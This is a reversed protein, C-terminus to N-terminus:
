HYARQRFSMTGIGPPAQIKTRSACVVSGLEVRCQRLTLHEPLQKGRFRLICVDSGVGFERLYISRLQKKLCAISQALDTDLAVIEGAPLKVFIRSVTSSPAIEYTTGDSSAEGIDAFPESNFKIPAVPTKVRTTRRRVPRKMLEVDEATREVDEATRTEFSFCVRRGRPPEPRDLQSGSLRSALAEESSEPSEPLTLSIEVKKKKAATPSCQNKEDFCVQSIDKCDKGRQGLLTPFSGLSGVADPLVDMTCTLRCEEASWEDSLMERCKVPM